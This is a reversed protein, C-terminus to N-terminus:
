CGRTYGDEDSFVIDGKTVYNDYRSVYKGWSDVRFAEVVEEFTADVNVGDYGAEPKCCLM